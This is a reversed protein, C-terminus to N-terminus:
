PRIILRGTWQRGETSLRLLCIGPAEGALDVVPGTIASLTVQRVMKGTFNFVDLTMPFDIASETLSLTVLGSSPNPFITLCGSFSGADHDSPRFETGGTFVPKSAPPAICYFGDPSIYAHLYGGSAGITSPLMIVKQGAVLTASGGSAVQFTTGGGGTILVDTAEFCEIETNGVSVNGTLVTDDV